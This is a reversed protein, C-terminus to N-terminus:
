EGLMQGGPKKKPGHIATESLLMKHPTFNRTDIAEADTFLGWFYEEGNKSKALCRKYFDFLKTDQHLALDDFSRSFMALIDQNHIEFPMLSKGIGDPTRKKRLQVHFERENIFAILGHSSDLFKGDGTPVDVLALLFPIRPVQTSFVDAIREGNHDNPDRFKLYEIFKFIADKYEEWKRIPNTIKQTILSELIDDQLFVIEVSVRNTHSSLADHFPKCFDRAWHDAPFSPDWRRWEKRLSHILPTLLCLKISKQAEMTIEILRSEFLELGDPNKDLEGMKKENNLEAKFLGTEKKLKREIDPVTVIRNFFYAALLSSLFGLLFAALTQVIFVGWNIYYTASTEATQASTEATQASTEATQTSTEATQTSTEATQTSLTESQVFIPNQMVGLFAFCCLVFMFLSRRNVKRMKEMFLEYRM